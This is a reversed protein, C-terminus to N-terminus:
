EHQAIIVQKLTSLIQHNDDYATLDVEVLHPNDHYPKVSQEVHLENFSFSDDPLSGSSATAKQMMDYLVAQARVKKVSVSSRIVNSYIMMAIGFVIVITVMAILVEILTSASVKQTLNLKRRDM